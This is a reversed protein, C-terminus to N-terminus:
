YKYMVFVRETGVDNSPDPNVFPIDPDFILRGSSSGHKFQRGVPNSLPVPIRSCDDYQTGERKVLLVTVFALESAVIATAGPIGFFIKSVVSM